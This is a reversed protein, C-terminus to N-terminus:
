ALAHVEHQWVEMVHDLWEGFSLPNVCVDKCCMETRM